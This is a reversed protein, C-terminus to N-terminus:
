LREIRGQAWRGICLACHGISLAWHGVVFENTEANLMSCQANLM